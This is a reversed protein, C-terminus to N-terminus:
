AHQWIKMSVVEGNESNLKIVKYERGSSGTIAAAVNSPTSEKLYSLTVDWYPEGYVLEVEELRVDKLNENAYINGLFEVARAVAEKVEIM